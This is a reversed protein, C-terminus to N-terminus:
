WFRAPSGLGFRNAAQILKRTGTTHEDSCFFLDGEPWVPNGHDMGFAKLGADVVAWGDANVSLVTALVSM